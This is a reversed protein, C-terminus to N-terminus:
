QGYGVEVNVARHGGQFQFFKWWEQKHWAFTCFDSELLPKLPITRGEEGRAKAKRKGEKRRGGERERRM